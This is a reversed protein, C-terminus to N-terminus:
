EDIKQRNQKKDANIKKETLRKEISSKTPRTSKRPKVPLLAKTILLITKTIADEKNDLQSRNRQSVVVLFGESNIRTALKTLLITKQVDTLASSDQINFRLEIKSNVKNVNQGGPGSSRSAQFIFESKLHETNLLFDNM